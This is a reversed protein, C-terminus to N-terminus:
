ALARIEARAHAARDPGFDYRDCADIEALIEDADFRDLEAISAYNEFPSPCSCGSDRATYLTGTEDHRWVVRTDFQYCGDSYEIEVVPTLGHREPSYYINAM